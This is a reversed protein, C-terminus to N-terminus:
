RALTGDPLRVELDITTELAVTLKTCTEAGLEVHQLGFAREAEESAYPVLQGDIGLYSVGGCRVASTYLPVTRDRFSDITAGTVERPARVDLGLSDAVSQSGIQVLGEGTRLWIGSGKPDTLVEGPEVQEVQEQEGPAPTTADPTTTAPPEPAGTEAPKPAEGSAPPVYGDPMASLPEGLPFQALAAESAELPARQEGGMQAVVDPSSVARRKGGELWYVTGDPGKLFDGLPESATPVLSCLLSSVQRGTQGYAAQLEPSTLPYRKGGIALWEQEGCRLRTVDLTQERQPIRDFSAQTIRVPTTAFGLEAAIEASAVPQLHAGDLIYLQEGNEPLLLAGNGVGNGGAVKELLGPVVRHVTTDVGRKRAEAEAGALNPFTARQGGSVISAEESGIEQVIHPGEAAGALRVHKAFSAPIPAFEVSQGYQARNVRLMGRETAIYHNTGDTMAPALSGSVTIKAYSADSITSPALWGFDHMSEPIAHATGAGDLLLPTKQSEGVVVAGVGWMPEGYPLQEILSADIRTAHASTDYGRVKLVGLGTVERKAGGEVYLNMGDPTRVLPYVTGAFAYTRFQADSIQVASECGSGYAEATECDVFTWRKGEGSLLYVWGNAGRVINSADP